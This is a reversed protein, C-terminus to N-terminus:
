IPEQSNHITIYQHHGEDEELSASHDLQDRFVPFAKPPTHDDSDLPDFDDHEYPSYSEVM